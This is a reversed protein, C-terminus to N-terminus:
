NSNLQVSVEAAAALAARRTQANAVWGALANQGAQPLAAIETLAGDLDGKSVAAEARSLVADADDGARPELSRAGLQTRFFAALPTVSGDSAAAETSAKLAARAAEPFEAMLATLTPVGNAAVSTLAQPANKGSKEAFEGLDGAFGTGSDLAIIVRSMAARAAAADAAKLAEQQSLAAATQAAEIEALKGDLTAKLEVFRTDVAALVDALQAEYAVVLEAPLEAKPIPQTEVDELRARLSAVTEALTVLEASAGDDSARLADLSQGIADADPQAAQLADLQAVTGDLAAKLDAIQRSQADIMEQLTATEGGLEIWGRGQALYLAGAGLGAAIVGGLVVNFFGVRQAPATTIVPAVTAEAPEVTEDIGALADVNEDLPEHPEAQPEVVTDSAIEEVVEAEQAPSDPGPKATPVKSGSVKPKSPKAM